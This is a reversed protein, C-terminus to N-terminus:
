ENTGTELSWTIQVMHVLRLMKRVESKFLDQLLKSHYKRGKGILSEESYSKIFQLIEVIEKNTNYHLLKTIKKRINDEKSLLWILLGCFKNKKPMVNPVSEWTVFQEETLENTKDVVHNM